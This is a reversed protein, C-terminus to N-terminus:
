GESILKGLGVTGCITLFEEPINNSGNRLDFNLYRIFTEETGVDVVAQLLELNARPGPLGSEKLLYEDWDPLNSLINKYTEVKGM